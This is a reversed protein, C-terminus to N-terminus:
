QEPGAQKPRPYHHDQCRHVKHENPAPPQLSELASILEGYNREANRLLGSQPFADAFTHYARIAERVREEKKSDVSNMALLFNSQFAMHLGEEKHRTNPWEKLFTSLAVNAAQYQRMKFYQSANEWGKTELKGRLQDVLANCSDRLATEPYHVVFLQLRDIATRTEQQDLSHQPSNRFYCYASLFASEEAYKSGPFTREFQELYYSAMTFDKLCFYTKAHLYHVRESMASGRTLAFLEELLPLARDCQGKSYFTDATALKLDMDKSKLAKSLDGCGTALGAVVVALLLVSRMRAFTAALAGWLLGIV